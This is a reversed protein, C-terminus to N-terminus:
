RLMEWDEVPILPETLDGLIKVTGKACGIKTQNIRKKKIPVVEAIPKNHKLVVCREGQEVKALVHSLHSKLEAVSREMTMFIVM